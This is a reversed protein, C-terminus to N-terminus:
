IKFKKIESYINFSAKVIAFLLLFAMMLSIFVFASILTTIKLASFIGLTVLKSFGILILADFFTIFIAIGLFNIILSGYHKLPTIFYFFIAIPLLFVGMSVFTYRIVLIITTLILTCLYIFSLLLNTGLNDLEQTGIYFFNPDILTLISSTIVSSLDIILQYIFFSAQILVIMILINKLWVKANERKASDYGSIIFNFGSFLILIAYFMSLLYVIIVWMDIFQDLNVPESLLNLTLQLFPHIPANLISLLFEFFNQTLCSGLNLLGCEM